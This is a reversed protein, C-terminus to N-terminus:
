PKVPYYSRFKGSQDVRLLNNQYMFHTEGNPAQYRTDYNKYTHRIM